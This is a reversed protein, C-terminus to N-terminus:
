RGALFASASLPGFQYDVALHAVSQRAGLRARTAPGALGDVVLGGLLQQMPRVGPGTVLQSGRLDITSVILGGPNVPPDPHIPPIPNAGTWLPFPHCIVNEDTQPIPAAVTPTVRQYLHAIPSVLGKSWAAAQWKWPADIGEIIRKSGYVGVPYAAVSAIGGFYAAAAAPYMDFDVAYFIPCGAPYGLARTQAEAAHADDVGAAHGESARTATSEWVLTISLGVLLLGDREGATLNKSPDNSLYRVVGSYGAGRIALPNPRAWAYDLLLDPM